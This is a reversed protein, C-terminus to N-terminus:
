RRSAYDLILMYFRRYFSPSTLDLNFGTFIHCTCLELEGLMAISGSKKPEASVITTGAQTYNQCMQINSTAGIEMMHTGTRHEM